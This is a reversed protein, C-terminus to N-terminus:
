VWIKYSRCPWILLFQHREFLSNKLVCGVKTGLWKWLPTKDLIGLIYTLILKPKVMLGPSSLLDYYAISPWLLDNFSLSKWPLDHYDHFTKSLHIFLPWLCSNSNQPPNTTAGLIILWLGLGIGVRSQSKKAKQVSSSRPSPFQILAEWYNAQNSPTATRTTCSLIPPATQATQAPALLSCQSPPALM